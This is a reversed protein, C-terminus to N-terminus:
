GAGAEGFELIFDFLSDFIHASRLEQHSYFSMMTKVKKVELQKIEKQAEETRSVFEGVEILVSLAGVLVQVVEAVVESKLPEVAESGATEGTGVPGDGEVDLTVEPGLLMLRLAPGFSTDGNWKLPTLRLYKARLTSLTSLAALSSSASLSTKSAGGRNGAAANNAAQLPINVVQQAAQLGTQVDGLHSWHQGDESYEVRLLTVWAEQLVAKAGLPLPNKKNGVAAATATATAPPPTTTDRSQHAYLAVALQQLLVNTLEPDSGTVIASATTVPESAGTLKTVFQIM